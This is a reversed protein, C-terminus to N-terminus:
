YLASCAVFATSYFFLLQASNSTQTVNHRIYHEESCLTTDPDEFLFHVSYIALPQYFEIFLTRYFNWPASLVAGKCGTVSKERIAESYTSLFTVFLMDIGKNSVRCTHRYM